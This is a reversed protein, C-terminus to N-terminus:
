SCTTPIYSTPKISHPITLIFWRHDSYHLIPRKSKMWSRGMRAGSILKRSVTSTTSVKTSYSFDVIVYM